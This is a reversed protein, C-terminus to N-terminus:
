SKATTYEVMPVCYIRESIIYLCIWLFFSLIIIILCADSPAERKKREEYEKKHKQIEEPTLVNTTQKVQETEIKILQSIEDSM